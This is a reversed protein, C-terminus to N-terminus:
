LGSFYETGMVMDPSPDVGSTSDHEGSSGRTQDTVVGVEELETDEEQEDVRPMDQGGQLHKFLYSFENSFDDARLEVDEGRLLRDM